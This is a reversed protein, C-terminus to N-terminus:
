RTHGKEFQEVSEKRQKILVTMVRSMEADDLDKKIEVEKNLVAAKIMRIVDVRLQDRSKMATKLDDSLRERLSM